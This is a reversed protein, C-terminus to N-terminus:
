TTALLVLVTMIVKQQFIYAVLDCLFTSAYITACRFPMNMRPLNGTNLKRIRYGELRARRNEKKEKVRELTRYSKDRRKVLAEKKKERRTTPCFTSLLAHSYPQTHHQGSALCFLSSVCRWHKINIGRM